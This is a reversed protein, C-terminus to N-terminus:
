KILVERYVKETRSVMREESWYTLDLKKRASICRESWQSYNDLITLVADAAAKIDKRKIIVGNNCNDLIDSIGGTDAAVIPVGSVAAELVALPLGEWLSSIVLISIRSFVGSLDGVWGDLSVHETLKRKIIERSINKRLPGDGIVSFRIDMRKNLILRVMELFYILGKQPKLCSINAILNDSPFSAKRKLFISDAWKIDVGYHIIVFKDPFPMIRKIGESLGASSVVIIKKTICATIKELFVYLWYLLPNMFKHFPWGHATYVINRVGALYAAWRGLVSAKPSHTHVIDFKNKRIYFYLKVFAVFDYLPNINRALEAILNVELFSLSTFEKKLYGRDGACLYISYENRNLKKVLSLLQKQAGGLELHTIIFLIKKM